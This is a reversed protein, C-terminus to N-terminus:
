EDVGVEGDLAGAIEAAGDDDPAIVVWNPGIVESGFSRGVQLWDDRNREDSFVFLGLPRREWACGGSEKVLQAGGGIQVNTCEVGGAELASVLEDVGTYTEPGGSCGTALLAFVLAAVIRKV